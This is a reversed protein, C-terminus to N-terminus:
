GGQFVLPEEMRQDLVCEEIWYDERNVWADKSEEIEKKIAREAAEESSFVGITCSDWGVTSVIFLKNNEM